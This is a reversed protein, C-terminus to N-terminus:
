KAQVTERAACESERLLVCRLAGYEPIVAVVELLRKLICDASGRGGEQWCSRGRKASNRVRRGSRKARTMGADDDM